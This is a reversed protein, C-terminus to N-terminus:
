AMRDARHIGTTYAGPNVGSDTDRHHHPKEHGEPYQIRGHMAAVISSTVSKEIIKIENLTLGSDDFQGDDLKQKILARIKAEVKNPPVGVGMSRCASECTDAIMLIAAEKSQPKPGPYRFTSEEVGEKGGKTARSYFFSVLSTGHHQEILNILPKPLYFQRALDVGDKVHAILVITSLQPEITDHVNEHGGQNESFYEPKMIKGIDHFYAGVRTLLGRANIAEAATEAIAGVQTCHGYTAPAVKILEQMLPHSMDGLELLSMDTLIGFQKEIFPLLGTMLLGALLAWLFNITGDTFLSENIIRDGLIGAAITLFFAAVGSVASVIVLKRRSRIRGLQVATAVCTGLLIIFLYISGGNGCVVVIALFLSLITALEWSYVISILMVFLMIPLIERDAGTFAFRQIWQAAAVTIIIGLMLYFFTTPTHPRRREVRFIMSVMIVFVLFFIGVAAIFRIFQKTQRQEKLSEKYEAYLLDIDSQQLDKGAPVLLRGQTYPIPVDKVAAVADNRIKATANPDVTLTDSLEPYIWNFIQDALGVNDMERYLTARLTAGDGMFVNSFADDFANKPLDQKQYIKINDQSGREQEVPRQMLIGHEEFPKFARELKSEFQKLDTDDEFYAVFAAFATEVEIDQPIEDKGHPRMFKLWTNKDQESINNYSGEDVFIAVVSKIKKRLEGLPAPDNCFVLPATMLTREIDETKKKPDFVTFPTNCVIDHDVISNIRYRFPENWAGIACALAISTLFMLMIFKGRHESKLFDLTSDFFSRAGSRQAVRESRTTATHPHQGAPHGTSQNHASM